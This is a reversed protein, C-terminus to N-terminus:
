TMVSWTTVASYTGPTEGWDVQLYFYANFDYTGIGCGVCLYPRWDPPSEASCPQFAFSNGGVGGYGGISDPTYQSWRLDNGDDNLSGDGTESFLCVGGFWPLPSTVRFLANQTTCAPAWGYFAGVGQGGPIAVVSDSSDSLQGEANLNAGFNASADDCLTLGISALPVVEAQVTVDGSTQARTGGALALGTLLALALASSMPRILRASYLAHEKSPLRAAGSAAEGRPHM